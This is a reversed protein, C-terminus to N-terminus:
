MNTVTYDLVEMWNVDRQPSLEIVGSRCYLVTCYLVKNRKAPNQTCTIYERGRCENITYEHNM